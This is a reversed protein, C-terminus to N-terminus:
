LSMNRRISFRLLHDCGSLIESVRGERVLDPDTVIVLDLINNERTLQSIIQTMFINKCCRSCDTAKRTAM